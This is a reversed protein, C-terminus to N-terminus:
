HVADTSVRPTDLQADDDHLRGYRGRFYLLPKQDESIAVHSVEGLLIVHDGGPLENTLTCELATVCDVIVPLGQRGIRFTGEEMSLSHEAGSRAFAQSLHVQHAALVNINFARARRIHGLTRAKQDICVMFMTPELSLSCVASATMAHYNGPEGTTIVTLGSPLSGAASRFLAPDVSM